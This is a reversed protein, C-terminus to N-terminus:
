LRVDHDETHGLGVTLGEEATLVNRGYEASAAAMSAARDNGPWFHTVM